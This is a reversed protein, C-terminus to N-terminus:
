SAIHGSGTDNANGGDGIALYLDGDPGFAVTGGNHNGEPHDERLLDRRTSIDVVLPNAATVKWQVLVNQHDIGGSLTGAAPGFNATATGAAESQYTYLTHYGSSTSDNFGPSFAVGLLGREDYGPSLPIASEISRIDLLPTAQLVGNHIVNIKGTQDVVFLDSSDGPASTAYVPATLGSAVTQLSVGISGSHIAGPLISQAGALTPFSLTAGAALLVRWSCVTRAWTTTGSALNTANTMAM